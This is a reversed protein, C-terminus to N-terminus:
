ELGGVAPAGVVGRRWSPTVLAKNNGAPEYVMAGQVYLTNADTVKDLSIAGQDSRLTAGRLDIPADAHLEMNLRSRLTAGPAILRGRARTDAQLLGGQSTVNAGTLNLDGGSTHWQVDQAATVLIGSADVDGGDSHLTFLQSTSRITLNALEYRGGRSDFTISQAATFTANRLYVPGGSSALGISQTASTLNATIYLCGTGAAFDITGAVSVNGVARPIVLGNAAAAHYVGALILAPPIPKDVGQTYACDADVDEFPIGPEQPAFSGGGPLGQVQTGNALLRPPPVSFTQDFFLQGDTVLKIHVSSGQARLCQAGSGVICLEQGIPWTSGNLGAGGLSSLEILDETPADVALFMRSENVPIVQGAIPRITLRGPEAKADLAAFFPHRPPEMLDQVVYWAAVSMVTAVLVLTVTGLLASVGM